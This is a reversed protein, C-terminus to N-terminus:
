AVARQGAVRVVRGALDVQRDDVLFPAALEQALGHLDNRVDGVFDFAHMALSAVVVFVDVDDDGFDAARDAVDFAQREEFGDALEREIDALFVAQVDVEREHRVQLRGALQLGLRRLVRDALQALDTDLGVNQDAAGLSESARSSRSFIARNQM